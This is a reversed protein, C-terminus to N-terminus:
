TEIADQRSPKINTAICIQWLVIDLTVILRYIRQKWNNYFLDFYYKQLIRHGQVYTKGREREM